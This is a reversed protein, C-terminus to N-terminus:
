RMDMTSETASCEAAAASESCARLMAAGDVVYSVM